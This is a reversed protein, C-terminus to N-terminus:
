VTEPESITELEAKLADTSIVPDFGCEDYNCDTPFEKLVIMWDGEHLYAYRDLHYIEGFIPLPARGQILTWDKGKPTIAQGIEFRQPKM